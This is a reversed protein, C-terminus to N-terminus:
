RRRRQGARRGDGRSDRVATGVSPNNTTSSPSPGPSGLAVFVGQRLLVARLRERGPLRSTAL